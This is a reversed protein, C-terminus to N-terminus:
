AEDHADAVRAARYVCPHPHPYPHPYGHSQLHHGRHRSCHRGQDRSRPPGPPPLEGPSADNFRYAFPAESLMGLQHQIFTGMINVTGPEHGRHLHKVMFTNLVPVSRKEFNGHFKNNQSCDSLNDEATLIHKPIHQKENVDRASNERANGMKKSNSYGALPVLCPAM